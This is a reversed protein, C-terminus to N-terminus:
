AQAKQAQARDTAVDDLIYERTVGDRGEVDIREVTHDSLAQHLAGEIQSLTYDNPMEAVEILILIKSM